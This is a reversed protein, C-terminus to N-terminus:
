HGRWERLTRTCISGCDPCESPKSGDGSTECVACMWGVVDQRHVNWDDHYFPDSPVGIEESPDDAAELIVFHEGMTHAFADTIIWERGDPGIVHDGDTYTQAEQVDGDRNDLLGMYNEGLRDHRVTVSEDVVRHEM